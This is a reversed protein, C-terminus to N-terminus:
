GCVRSLMKEATMGEGPGFELPNIASSFSMARGNDRSAPVTIATEGNGRSSPDKIEATNPFFV